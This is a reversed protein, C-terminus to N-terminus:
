VKFYVRVASAVLKLPYKMYVGLVLTSIALFLMPAVMIWSPETLKIKERIVEHHSDSDRGHNDSSHSDHEHSDHGHAEAGEASGFWGNIIIPGYYVINLLGSLVVSGVIAYGMWPAIIGLTASELAGKALFWKSFFGIFPPIGIMSLGALTIVIMTFPMTKGLGKLDSLQRKGTQHIVAGAALFLASKMIAHNLIHLIGGMLATKSLLSAGLLVYGIQAVSSFALMKKLEKQTIAALSGGIMTILAIAILSYTMVQTLIIDGNHSFTGYIVRIIGYAGAKIMVGSLLASASSPAIPHAQPLWIHVPFVGAKIAFGLILLWFALTGTGGTTMATSVSGTINISGTLNFIIASGIVICATGVVSMFLYQFGAKIADKTMEHIVLLASAVSFIEFFILLTFFNESFVIGLMGFLSLQMVTAFMGKNEHIYEISYFTVLFWVSTTILALFMSLADARLALQFPLGVDLAVRLTEGNNFFVYLAIVVALNSGTLVTNLIGVTKKNKYGWLFVLISGFLPIGISKM